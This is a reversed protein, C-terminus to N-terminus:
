PIVASLLIAAAASLRPYVPHFQLISIFLLHVQPCRSLRPYHSLQLGRSEKPCHHKTPLLIGAILLTDTLM